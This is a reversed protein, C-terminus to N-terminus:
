EVLSVIEDLDEALTRSDGGNRQSPTSLTLSQDREQQCDWEEYDPGCYSESIEGEKPQYDGGFAAGTWWRGNDLDNYRFAKVCEDFWARDSLWDISTEHSSGQVQAHGLSSLQAYLKVYGTKMRADYRIDPDSSKLDHSTAFPNPNRAPTLKSILM